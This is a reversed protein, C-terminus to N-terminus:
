NNGNTGEADKIEDKGGQYKTQEMQHVEVKLVDIQGQLETVLKQKEKPNINKDHELEQIFMKKDDIDRKLLEINEDNEFTNLEGHLQDVDRELTDIQSHLEHDEPYESFTVTSLICLSIIFIVGVIALMTNQRKKNERDVKQSTTELAMTLLAEMDVLNSDVSQGGNFKGGDAGAVSAVSVSQDDVSSYHPQSRLININANSRLSDDKITSNSRQTDSSFHITRPRLTTNEDDEKLVKSLSSM